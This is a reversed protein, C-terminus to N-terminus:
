KQPSQARSPPSTGTTGSRTLKSVMEKQVVILPWSGDVVPVVVSVHGEFVAAISSGLARDASCVIAHPVSLNRFCAMVSTLHGLLLEKWSTGAPVVGWIHTRFGTEVAMVCGLQYKYRRRVIHQACVADELFLELNELVHPYM